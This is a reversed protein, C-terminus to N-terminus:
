RHAHGDLEQLTTALPAPCPPPPAAAITRLIQRLEFFTRGPMEVAYLNAAISTRARTAHAPTFVPAARLGSHKNAICCALTPEVCFFVLGPIAGRAIREALDRLSSAPIHSLHIADRQLAQVAAAILADPQEHAYSWTAPPQPTIGPSPLQWTIRVGRARLEDAALPTIVTRPLLHLERQGNLHRRLDDASLLRKPWSLVDSVPTQGNTNM